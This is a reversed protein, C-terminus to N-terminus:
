RELPLHCKKYKKGSGCWCPDNRGPKPKKRVPKSTDPMDNQPFLSKLNEAFSRRPQDAQELKRQQAANLYGGLDEIAAKLEIFAQNALPNDTESSPTLEDFKAVLSPLARSDGYEALFIAGLEPNRDLTDMLIEYIRGDRIGIGQLVEAVGDRLDEGEVVRYRELCPEIVIEGFEILAKIANNRLWDLPDCEDVCDLLVPIARVDRIKGLLQAAHIAGFGDVNEDDLNTEVLEILAPVISPGAALLNEHLPEPLTKGAARLQQILENPQNTPTDTSRTDTM